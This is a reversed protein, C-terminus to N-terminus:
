FGQAPLFFFLTKAPADHSIALYEPLRPQAMAKAARSIRSLRDTM